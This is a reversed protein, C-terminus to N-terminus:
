HVAMSSLSRSQRTKGSPTFRAFSPQSALCNLSVRGKIEKFSVILFPLFTRDRKYQYNIHYSRGAGEIEWRMEGEGDLVGLLRSTQPSIYQSNKKPTHSVETRATNTQPRLQPRLLLFLVRPFLLHFRNISLSPCNFLRNCVRMPHRYGTVPSM